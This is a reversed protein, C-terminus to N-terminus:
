EQHVKVMLKKFPAQLKSVRPALHHDYFTAQPQNIQPVQRHIKELHSSLPVLLKTVQPALPHRYDKLSRRQIKLPFLTYIFVVLSSQEYCHNIVWMIKASSLSVSEHNLIEKKGYVRIAWRWFIKIFVAWVDLIVLCRLYYVYLTVLKNVWSNFHFKKKRTQKLQFKEGEFVLSISQILMLPRMHMSALKQQGQSVPCIYIFFLLLNFM